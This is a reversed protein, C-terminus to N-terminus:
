WGSAVLFWIDVVVVDLFLDELVIFDGEDQIYVSPLHTKRTGTGSRIANRERAKRPGPVPYRVTHWRNGTGKKKRLLLHRIRPVDQGPGDAKDLAAFHRFCEDMVNACFPRPRLLRRSNHRGQAKRRTRGRSTHKGDEHSFSKSVVKQKGTTPTVPAFLDRTLTQFGRALTQFRAGFDLLATCCNSLGRGCLPFVM